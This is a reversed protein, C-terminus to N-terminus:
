TAPLYRELSKRNKLVVQAAEPIDTEARDLGLHRLVYFLLAQRCTLRAEGQVMGYDLEIALRKPKALKPHPALVLEVETSWARDAEPGPGSADM